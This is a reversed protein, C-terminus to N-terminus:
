HPGQGPVGSLPTKQKHDDGNSLTVHAAQLGHSGFVTLIKFMPLVKEPLELDQEKEAGGSM